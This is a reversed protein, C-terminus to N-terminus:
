VFHSALIKIHVISLKQKAFLPGRAYKINLDHGFVHTVFIMAHDFANGNWLIPKTDLLKMSYNKTQTQM